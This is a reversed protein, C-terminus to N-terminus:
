SLMEHSCMRYVTKPTLLLGANQIRYQNLFLQFFINVFCNINFRIKYDFNLFNCLILLIFMPKVPGITNYKFVHTNM